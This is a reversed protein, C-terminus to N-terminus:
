CACTISLPTQRIKEGQPPFGLATLTNLADSVENARKFNFIVLADTPYLRVNTINAIKLLEQGIKTSCGDCFSRQVPIKAFGTKM